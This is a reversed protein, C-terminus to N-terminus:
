YSLNNATSANFFVDPYLKNTQSRLFAEAHRLVRFGLSFAALACLEKERKPSVCVILHKKDKEWSRATKQSRLAHPYM